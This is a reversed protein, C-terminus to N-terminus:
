KRKAVYVTELPRANRAALIRAFRSGEKAHWLVDADHLSAARELGDMLMKCRGGRRLEPHVFLACATFTTIRTFPHRSVTAIAYGSLVQGDFLGLAYLAGADELRQFTDFDISLPANEQDVGLDLGVERHHQEFLQQGEERLVAVTVRRIM